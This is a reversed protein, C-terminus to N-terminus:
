LLMDTDYVPTICMGLLFRFFGSSMGCHYCNHRTRNRYEALILDEMRRVEQFLGTMWRFVPIVRGFEMPVYRIIIVYRPVGVYNIPILSVNVM